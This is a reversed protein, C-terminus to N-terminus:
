NGEKEYIRAISFRGNDMRYEIGYKRLNEEIKSGNSAYQVQFGVVEIEKREEDVLIKQLYFVSSVKSTEVKEALDYFFNRAAPYASASYMGLLETFQARITVPTYSFVLSSIYRAFEKYYEESAKQGYLEFKTNIVPPVIVTRHSNLSSYLLGTNILTTIGIIVIVFKLLKNEVELNKWKSLFLSIKM